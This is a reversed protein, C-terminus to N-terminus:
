ERAFPKGKYIREQNFSFAVEEVHVPVDRRLPPSSQWDEPLLLPRMDPHGDFDIGFLDKAEREYWATSPWVTTLTPMTPDHEELRVKIRVRRTGQAPLPNDPLVLLHINVEFRPHEPWMDVASLDCMYNFGLEPEDRLLTCVDVVQARDVVITIEDCFLIVEQVADPVAQEMFSVIADAKEELHQNQDKM